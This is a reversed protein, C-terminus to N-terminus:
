NKIGKIKKYLKYYISREYNQLINYLYDTDADKLMFNKLLIEKEKEGVDVQMEFYNVVREYEQKLDDVISLIIQKEDDSISMSNIKSKFDLTLKDFNELNM